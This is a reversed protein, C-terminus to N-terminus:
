GASWTVRPGSFDFKRLNIMKLCDALEIQAARYEAIRQAIRDLPSKVSRAGKNMVHTYIM